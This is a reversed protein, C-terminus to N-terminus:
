VYLKHNEKVKVLFSEMAEDLISYVEDFAEEGGYYPDPVPLGESGVAFDRMLYIEKNPFGYHVKLNDLNRLNNEDMAIIYDFDRFDTRNVQRGRHKLSLGNKLACKLAREDPLEGIHFDSTGASDSNFQSRLGVDAVKENFIAM